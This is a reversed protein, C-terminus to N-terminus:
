SYRALLADLAPTRSKNARPESRVVTGSTFPTGKTSTAVTAISKSSASPAQSVKPETESESASDESGYLGGTDDSSDSDDDDEDEDDDDEDDEDDGDEDDESADDSEDESDAQEDVFDALDDAEGDSEVVGEAVDEDSDSENVTLSNMYADTSDIPASKTSKTQPAQKLIEEAPSEDVNSDQGRAGVRRKAPAAGRKPPMTDVGILLCILSMHIYSHVYGGGILTRQQSQHVCAFISQSESIIVVPVRARKETDTHTHTDRSQSPV